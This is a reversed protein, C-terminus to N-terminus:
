KVFCYTANHKFIYIYMCSYKYFATNNSPLYLQEDRLISFYLRLYLLVIIIAFVYLSHNTLSGSIVCELLTSICNKFIIIGYAKM